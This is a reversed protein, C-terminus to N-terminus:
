RMLLMSMCLTMIGLLILITVDTYRVRHKKKRKFDWYLFWVFQTRNMNQQKADRDMDDWTYRKCSDSGISVNEQM